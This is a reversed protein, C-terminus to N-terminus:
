INYLPCHRNNTLLNQRFEELRPNNWVDNIFDECHLVDIGTKWKGVGESFSCPYGYGEANIYFSFCGSECKEVYSKMYAKDTNEIMSLFKPASCSDFGFKLQLDICKQAIEAFEDQTIPHYSVGRGKQKLSLFVVANLKELREDHIIDNILEYVDDITEKSLLMHINVQIMGRDTLRKVSNYCIDKDHYRSVAVAGCVSALKDATADDIDAVTVNPIFGKKRAYKFIEFWSPNSELKADTGFAIQTCQKPLKDIIIRAEELTMNHGSHYSKYCHKCPGYNGIGSCTQTIEMDLLMNFPAKEPDESLTKGWFATTGNKKNFIYNFNKSFFLKENDDEFFKCM